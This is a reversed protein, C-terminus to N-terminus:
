VKLYNDEEYKDCITEKGIIPLCLNNVFVCNLTPAIHSKLCKREECSQILLCGLIISIRTM